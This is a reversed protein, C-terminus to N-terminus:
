SAVAPEVTEKSSRDVAEILAGILFGVVLGSAAGYVLDLTKRPSVPASSATPPNITAVELNMGRGADFYKLAEGFAKDGAAVTAEAATPSGADASIDILLTSAVPTATFKPPSSLGLELQAAHAVAKSQAVLQFSPILASSLQESAYADTSTSGGVVHVLVESKAQYQKTQTFAIGLSTAVGVLLCVLIAPWRRRIVRVYGSEVAPCM